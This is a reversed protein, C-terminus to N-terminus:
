LRFHKEPIARDGPLPAPHPTAERPPQGGLHLARPAALAGWGAQGCRVELQNGSLCSLEQNKHTSKQGELLGMAGAVGM